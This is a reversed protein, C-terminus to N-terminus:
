KSKLVSSATSHHGLFTHAFEFLLISTKHPQISYLGYRRPQQNFNFIFVPNFFFFDKMWREWLNQLFLHKYKSKLCEFFIIIKSFTLCLILPRIFKLVFLLLTNPLPFWPPRPSFSTIAFKVKSDVVLLSVWWILKQKVFEQTTGVDLRQKPKSRNAFNM